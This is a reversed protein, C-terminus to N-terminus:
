CQVNSMTFVHGPMFSTSTLLRTLFKEKSLSTGGVERVIGAWKWILPQSAHPGAWQTMVDVGRQNQGSRQRKVKRSVEFQSLDNTNTNQSIM